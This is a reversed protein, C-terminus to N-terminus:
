KEEFAQTLHRIVALLKEFLYTLVKDNLSIVVSDLM